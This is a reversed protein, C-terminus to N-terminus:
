LHLLNGMEKLHCILVMHVQICKLKIHLILLIHPLAVRHLIVLKMIVLQNKGNRLHNSQIPEVGDYPAPPIIDATSLNNTDIQQDFSQTRGITGEIPNMYVFQTVIITVILLTTAIRKKV